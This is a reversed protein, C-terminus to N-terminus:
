FVEHCAEELVGCDWVQGAIAAALCELQDDIHELAIGLSLMADEVEKNRRVEISLAGDMLADILKQTKEQEAAWQRLFELPKM